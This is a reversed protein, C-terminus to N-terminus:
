GNAPESASARQKATELASQLLADDDDISSGQNQAAQQPAQQPAQTNGQDGAPTHVAQNDQNHNVAGEDKKSGPAKANHYPHKMELGMGEALTPRVGDTNAVLCHLNDNRASAYVNNAWFHEAGVQKGTRQDFKGSSCVLVGPAARLNYKGDAHSGIMLEPGPDRMSFNKSAKFANAMTVEVRVDGHQAKWVDSYHNFCEKLDAGSPPLKTDKNWDVVSIFAVVENNENLARMSFASTPLVPLKLSPDAAQQERSAQIQEVSADLRSALADVKDAGFAQDHWMYVRGYMLRKQGNDVWPKNISYSVSGDAERTPFGKLTIIGTRTKAEDAPLRNVWHCPQPKGDMGGGFDILRELVIKEGPQIVSAMREDIIPGMFNPVEDLTSEDPIWAEKHISTLFEREGEKVHITANAADIAVVEVVADRRVGRPGSSGGNSAASNNQEVTNIISM